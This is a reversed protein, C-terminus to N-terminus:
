RPLLEESGFLVVPPGSITIGPNDPYWVSWYGREEQAIGGMIYGLGLGGYEGPWGPCLYGKAGARLQLQYHFDQLEKNIALIGGDYDEPLEDFYFDRVKKRFEGEEKTFEFNM